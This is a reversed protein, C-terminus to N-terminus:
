EEAGGQARLEANRWLLAVSLLTIMLPSVLASYFLSYFLALVVVLSGGIGIPSHDRRYRVVVQLLFALYLGAGIFGQSILMLWLQGTSGIVRNGCRPCNASAGLAASRESGITSRTTGYGLIPSTLAVRVSERALSSRVENSHPTEVRQTVISQLPSFAFVSGAFMLGALVWLLATYRHRLGLRVLVYVLSIGLGLWMGRNQSYVVPIISLILLAIGIGRRGASGFVVWGLAFWVLLMSYNNGWANAYEFPASPRPFGLVEQVQATSVHVLQRLFENQTLSGPLLIEVVSRFSVQPAFTGLLGGIVTYCFLAGLGLVLKVRPLERETLNGAYLMIVTVAFYNALRIGAALYRGLGSGIPLTEPANVDLMVGSAVVWVLFLAWVWFMPPRKFRGRAFMQWAMPVAFGVFIVPALGLVWWLPYGLILWRLPWPSMPRAVRVLRLAWPQADVVPGEVVAPASM